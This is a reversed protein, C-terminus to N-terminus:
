GSHGAPPFARRRKWPPIFPITEVLTGGPCQHKQTRSRGGSGAQGVPPPPQSKQSPFGANNVFFGCFEPLKNLDKGKREGM